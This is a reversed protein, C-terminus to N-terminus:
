FVEEDSDDLTPDDLDDHVRSLSEEHDRTLMTFLYPQLPEPEENLLIIKLLEPSELKPILTKPDEEEKAVVEPSAAAAPTAADGRDDDDDENDDEGMGDLGRGLELTTHEKKLKMIAQEHQKCLSELKTIRQSAEAGQDGFQRIEKAAQDLEENRAHTLKVEDLLCGVCDRDGDPLVVADVGEYAWSPFHQYQSHEMQYDEKHCLVAMAQHTADRIRAELSTRLAAAEIVQQTHCM